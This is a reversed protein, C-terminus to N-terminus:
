PLRESETESDLGARKTLDTLEREVVSLRRSLMWFYGFAFIWVLSYASVLFPAAPLRDEEPLEGIPVFEEVPPPQIAVVSVSSILCIAAALLTVIKRSHVPTCNVRNWFWFLRM